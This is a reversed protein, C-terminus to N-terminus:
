TLEMVQEFPLPLILDVLAKVLIYFKINFMIKGKAEYMWCSGKVSGEEGENKKDSEDSSVPSLFQYHEEIEAPENLDFQLKNSQSGSELSNAVEGNMLSTEEEGDHCELVPLELDLVMKEPKKVNDAAETQNPINEEYTQYTSVNSSMWHTTPSPVSSNLYLAEEHQRTGEMEMMLEKQRQYLRHLEHIQFHSCSFDFEQVRHLM